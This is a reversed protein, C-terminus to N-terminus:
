AHRPMQTSELTPVHAGWEVRRSVRVLLRCTHSDAPSYVRLPTLFSIPLIGPPHVVSRGQDELLTSHSCATPVSSPSSHRASALSVRTSAMAIKFLYPPTAAKNLWGVSDFSLHAMKTLLVPTAPHVPLPNVTGSRPALRGDPCSGPRSSYSATAAFGLGSRRAVTPASRPPLLLYEFSFKSPSSPFTGHSRCKCM